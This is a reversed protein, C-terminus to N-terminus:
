ERDSRPWRLLAGVGGAPTGDAAGDGPLVVAEGGAAATSLLLADDARAPSPREAGLQQVDSRRPAVQDPEEGVWVERHLDPGTGRLLLTDIRHQQAAEAVDPVGEVAAGPRDSANRGARFRDLLRETRRAAHDLRAAEIDAALQDSDAGAARGGHGSVTTVERLEPPLRDRVAHCERAGGALVVLEAGSAEFARGLEEAILSANHEWTNEVAADFHKVSWDGASARHIPWDQGQVGGAATPRGVDYLEFDGGSRDVRAVLCAPEQGALGLLPTLRPLVSWSAEPRGPDRALRCELAVRGEAAFLAVARPGADPVSRELARRVADVTPADAGQDELSHCLEQWTLERRTTAAEDPPGTTAYVTAWPGERATM